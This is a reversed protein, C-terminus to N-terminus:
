FKQTKGIKEWLVKVTLSIPLAAIYIFANSQYEDPRICAYIWFLKHQSWSLFVQQEFRVQM